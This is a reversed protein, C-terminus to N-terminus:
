DGTVVEMTTYDLESGLMSHPISYVLLLLIAAGIVWWRSRTSGRVVQVLAAIWGIMAFLTKNDTLDYGWPIGTWFAGFAYKQVVPGLIMGGIFLFVTTLMVLHLLRRRKTLAELGSLNSLFMAFFMFFIHPLLFGAPVAGRFRIVVTEEGPIITRNGHERYVIFYELKGAPPQQPLDAYYVGSDYKMPLRIWDEDTKYRRYVLSLSLTDADIELAIRKDGEEGQSRPLSYTCESGAIRFNGSLPYTPGTSRQYVAASLTIVLAILVNYIM